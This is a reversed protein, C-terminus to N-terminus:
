SLDTQETDDPKDGLVHALAIAMVNAVVKKLEATELDESFMEICSESISVWENLLDNAEGNLTVKVEAGVDNRTVLEAKIM